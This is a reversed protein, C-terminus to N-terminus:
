NSRSRAPKKSTRKALTAVPISLTRSPHTFSLTLAFSVITGSDEAAEDRIQLTWTGACSKGAVHLLAPTTAADYTKKLNKTSGGARNHLVVPNMGSGPPPQLTIVLDGIYTHKLDIAVSLTEVPTSDPVTLAFLVTQLDPIPADFTRNVTVGNQPQPKAL